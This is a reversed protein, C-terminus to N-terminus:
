MLMCSIVQCFITGEAPAVYNKSKLKIWNTSDNYRYVLVPM